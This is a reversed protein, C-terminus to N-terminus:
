FSSVPLRMTNTYQGESFILKGTLSGSTEIGSTDFGVMKGWWFKNELVYKQIV